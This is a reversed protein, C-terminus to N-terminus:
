SAHHIFYGEKRPPCNWEISLATAPFANAQMARNLRLEWVGPAGYPGKYPNPRISELARFHSAKGAMVGLDFINFHIPHRRLHFAEFDLAEFINPAYPKIEIDWELLLCQTEVPLAALYQFTKAHVEFPQELDLQVWEAGVRDAYAQQTLWCHRNFWPANATGATLIVM